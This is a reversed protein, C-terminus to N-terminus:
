GMSSINKLNNYYTCGKSPIKSKVPNDMKIVMWINHVQANPVQEHGQLQAAGILVGHRSSRKFLGICVHEILIITYPHKLDYLVHDYTDYCTFSNYVCYVVQFIM